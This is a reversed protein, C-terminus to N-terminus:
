GVCARSTASKTCTRTMIGARLSMKFDLDRCIHRQENLIVMVVALDIM